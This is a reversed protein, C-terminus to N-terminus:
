YIKTWISFITTWCTWLPSLVFFLFNLFSICIWIFLFWYSRWIFRKNQKHKDQSIHSYQKTINPQLITLWWYQRWERENLSINEGYNPQRAFLISTEVRSENKLNQFPFFPIPEISIFRIPLIRSPFMTSLPPFSVFSFDAFKNEFVRNKNSKSNQLKQSCRFRYM